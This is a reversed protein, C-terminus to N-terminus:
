IYIYIYIISSMCRRDEVALFSGIAPLTQPLLFDPFELVESCSTLHRRLGIFLELVLLVRAREILIVDSKELGVYAAEGNPNKPM